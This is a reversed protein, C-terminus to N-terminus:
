LNETRARAGVKEPLGGPLSGVFDSARRNPQIEVDRLKGELEELRQRSSFYALRKRYRDLSEKAVPDNRSDYTAYEDNTLPPTPDIGGNRDFDKLARLYRIALSEVLAEWDRDENAVREQPFAKPHSEDM